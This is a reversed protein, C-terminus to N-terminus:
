RMLISRVSNCGRAMAYRFSYDVADNYFYFRMPELSDKDLVPVYRGWIGDKISFGFTLVGGDEYTDIRVKTRM